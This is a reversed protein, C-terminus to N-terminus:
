PYLGAAPEPYKELAEEGGKAEEGETMHPREVM